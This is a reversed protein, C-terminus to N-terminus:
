ARCSRGATAATLVQRPCVDVGAARTLWTAPDGSHYVREDPEIDDLFVPLDGGAAAGRGPSCSAHGPRPRLGARRAGCGSWERAGRGSDDRLRGPRRRTSCPTASAATAGTSCCAPATPPASGTNGPHFDGHVFTDPLGCEAIAAFRDAPRRRTSGAPEGDDARAPRRDPRARARGGRVFARDALGAARGGRARSGTSGSSRCGSSCRVIRLLVAARCGLPGRRARRRAPRAPRGRRAAAARGDPHLRRLM